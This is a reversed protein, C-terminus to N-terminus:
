APSPVTFTPGTAIFSNSWGAIPVTVALRSTGTTPRCGFGTRRGTGLTGHRTSTVDGRREDRALEVRVEGVDRVEAGPTM